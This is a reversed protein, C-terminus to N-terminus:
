ASFPPIEPYDAPYTLNLLAWNLEKRFHVADGPVHWAASLHSAEYIDFFPIGLEAMLEKQRRYLIDMYESTMFKTRVYCSRSEYCGKDFVVHPNMAQPSKWYLDVNPFEQHFREIVERVAEIHNDFNDNKRREVRPRILDWAASGTMVAVSENHSATHQLTFNRMKELFEDVGALSLDMLFNTAVFMNSKRFDGKQPLDKGCLHRILSDGMCLVKDYASFDIKITENMSPFKYSQIDTPTSVNQLVHTARSSGNNLWKGRGHRDWWSGVGCTYIFHFTLKGRGELQFTHNATPVLKRLPPQVFKLQYRGNGLYSPVGVATPDRITGNFSLYDGYDHFTVFFDDGGVTKPVGDSLTQLVWNSRTSDMELRVQNTVSCNDLPSSSNEGKVIAQEIYQHILPDPTAPILSGKLTPEIGDVVDDTDGGAISSTVLRIDDRISTGTRNLLSSASVNRTIITNYTDMSTDGDGDSSNSHAIVTPAITSTNMHSDVVTDVHTQSIIHQSSNTSSDVDNM